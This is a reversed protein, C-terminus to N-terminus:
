KDKEKELEDIKQACPKRLNKGDKRVPTGFIRRGCEDCKGGDDLLADAEADTLIKEESM